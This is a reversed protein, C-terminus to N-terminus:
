RQNKGCCQKYKKGSKCPCKINRGIKLNHPIQTLAVMNKQKGNLHDVEHQWVQAEFGYKAERIKEGFGNHYEVIIKSWRDVIEHVGIYTMCYESKQQLVGYYKVIKPNLVVYVMEKQIDKIVFFRKTLRYGKYSMQNSALAIARENNALYKLLGEIMEKKFRTFLKPAIIRSTKVPQTDMLIKWDESQIKVVKSITPEEKNYEVTLNTM